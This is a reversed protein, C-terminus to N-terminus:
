GATVGRRYEAPAAGYQRRFAKAFQAQQRYGVNRAVQQVTLTSQRLQAAAAEMRVACLRERFTTGGQEAFARQLQRRSTAIRRAVDELRLESAYEARMIELAEGLLLRRFRVTSPRNTVATATGTAM